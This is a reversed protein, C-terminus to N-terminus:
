RPRWGKQALDQMIQERVLVAADQQRKDGERLELWCQVPSAAPVGDASPQRDMFVADDRSEILELDPFRM